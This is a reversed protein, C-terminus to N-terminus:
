ILKKATDIKVVSSFDHKTNFGFGYKNKTLKVKALLAAIDFKEEEEEKKRREEEDIEFQERQKLMAEIKKLSEEKNEADRAKDKSVVKNFHIKEDLEYAADSIAKDTDIKNKDVIHILDIVLSQDLLGISSNLAPILSEM